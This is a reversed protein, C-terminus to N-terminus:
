LEILLWSILVLNDRSLVWLAILWLFVCPILEAIETGKTTTKKNKIKHLDTFDQPKM